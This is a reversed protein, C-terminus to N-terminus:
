TFQGQGGAPPPQPHSVPPRANPPSVTAVSMTPPPTPATSSYYGTSATQPGQSSHYSGASATQLGQPQQSGPGSGMPVPTYSFHSDAPDDQIGPVSYTDHMAPTPRTAETTM